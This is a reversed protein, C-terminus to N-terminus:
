SSGTIGQRRRPPAPEGGRPRKLLYLLWGPRDPLAIFGAPEWGAWGYLDSLREANEEPSGGREVHLYDWRTYTAMAVGGLSTEGDRESARSVARV